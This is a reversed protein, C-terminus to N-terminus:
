FGVELIVGLTRPELLRANRYRGILADEIIINTINDEDTVNKVFFRVALGDDASTFRAQFDIVGWADIVDTPSNYERAFYSDQWVADVRFVANWDAIIPGTDYQAGVKAKFEPSHPLHNGRLNVQVTPTTVLLSQAPNAADESFFDGIQTHLYSVNADFLLGRAPAYLFEGEVGWIDADANRTLVGGNIRQGLQLGEYVCSFAAFNAQLKGDALTNKAGLEYAMVTEPGYTPASNSNNLGGGKYGTSASAYLLTDDSPKWDLAAKWTPRNGGFESYVFPTLGTLVISRSDGSRFEDTYRAGLTLRLDDSFSVYTEGFLAWTSSEGNRSLASVRWTEQPRGLARQFLEIAPHWTEFGGESTGEAWFFGGVFNIPGEFESALRAEVTKTTSESTFSDTTLLRDTTVITNRDRFYTIPAGFRFPLDANDWDTNQETFGESYAAVISMQVSGFDHEFNASVTNQELVFNPDADAAVKRLDAPNPAGLYIDTGNPFIAPPLVFDADLLTRLITTFSNPSDFGLENPSCGLVPHAKCLRKGERARSSDERYASGIVTLNTDPGFELFGTGRVAWQDRGDINNGTSLNETYGDRNLWYGAVRVALADSVPLNVAGGVRRNEYNGLQLNAYGGFEPEPKRTIINIAGGTTNRGYLTGQPGRLVEIRQIDFFENQPLYGIAAGNVFSQVGLDSSGLANTGIGRLTFRDNGTLVANPISFQLDTADEIQARDLAAGTFASVAIPVDQLKQERKQATVTVKEIKGSDAAAPKDEQASAPMAALALCIASASLGLSRVCTDTIKVVMASEGTQGVRPM